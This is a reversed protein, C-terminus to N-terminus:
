LGNIPHFKDYPGAKSEPIQFADDEWTRLFSLLALHTHASSISWM